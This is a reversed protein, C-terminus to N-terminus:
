SSEMKVNCDLIPSKASSELKTKSINLSLEKEPGKKKTAKMPDKEKQHIVIKEALELNKWTLAIIKHRKQAIRLNKFFNKLNYFPQLLLLIVQVCKAWIGKNLNYCM